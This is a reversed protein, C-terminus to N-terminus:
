GGIGSVFCAKLLPILSDKEVLEDIVLHRFPHAKQFSDQLRDVNADLIDKAIWQFM